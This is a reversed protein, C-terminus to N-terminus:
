SRAPTRALRSELGAATLADAWSGFFRAITNRNPWGPQRDRAYRACSLLEDTQSAWRRLILLYADRADVTPDSVDRPPSRPVYRKSVALARRAMALRESDPRRGELSARVLELAGARWPLYQEAKRGLLPASDFLSVAELLDARSCVVWSAQPSDPPRTAVDYVKGIRFADAYRQLLPRDDRRLKIVLRAGGERPLLFCGEGSFFGSFHDNLGSPPLKLTNADGETPPRYRRVERLRDALQRLSQRIRDDSLYRATAWLGVAKTWLAQERRRRGLFPFEGLIGALVLCELKSAITWVVQPRSGGQAPKRKLHGLGTAARLSFLLNADDDRLAIVLSCAWTSGGNNASIALHAEGELLGSLGRWGSDPMGPAASIREKAAAEGGPIRGKRQITMGFM